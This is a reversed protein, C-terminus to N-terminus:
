LKQKKNKLFTEIGKVRRKELGKKTEKEIM